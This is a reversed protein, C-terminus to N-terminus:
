TADTSLVRTCRKDRSILGVGSVKQRKGDTGRGRGLGGARQGEGISGDLGGSGTMGAAPRCRRDARRGIMWDTYLMSGVAPKAISQQARYKLLCGEM